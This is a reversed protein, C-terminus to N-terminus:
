RKIRTSDDCLDTLCFYGPLMPLLQQPLEYIAGVMAGRDVWICRKIERLNV